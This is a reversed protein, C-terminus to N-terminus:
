PDKLAELMTKNTSKLDKYCIESAYASEVHIYKDKCQTLAHSDIGRLNLDTWMNEQLLIPLDITPIDLGSV